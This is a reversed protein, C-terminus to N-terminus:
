LVAAIASHSINCMPGTSLSIYCSAYSFAINAELGCGCAINEKIIHSVLGQISLGLAIIQNSVNQTGSSFIRRIPEAKRWILEANRTVLIPTASQTSDYNGFVACATALQEKEALALPHLQFHVALSCKLTKNDSM